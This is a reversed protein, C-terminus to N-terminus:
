NKSIEAILKGIDENTFVYKQNCFQCVLEEAQGEDYLSKLERIGISIFAREVRERSCDCQYRPNGEYNLKLYMDDCLYNLVEDISQGSSLVSSLPPLEEIRYTLIDALMPDHGPMMQLLLGGAAAVEGKENFSEGLIVASPLQESVTYYYAVDEAIGGTYIPVSSVYPEKMGMDMIVSFKGETGVAGAVDVKGDEKLPLDVEPDGLYGKVELNMGSTVLAGMSPGDGKIQVTLRDTPNKLVAGMMLGSTLMRGLLTAGTLSLGHVKRAEEVLEKTDAAIIRVTGNMATAKILRDM